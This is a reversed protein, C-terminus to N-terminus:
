FGDCSIQYVERVVRNEGDEVIRRREIGRIIVYHLTGPSDLRPQRPM